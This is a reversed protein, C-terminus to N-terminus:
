GGSHEHRGFDSHRQKSRCRRLKHRCVDRREAADYAVTSPWEGVTVNAVVKNDSDSIVSVTNSSIPCYGTCSDSDAVYLEGKTPDYAIGNPGSGGTGSSAITVNTVVTNTSDSIVSVTNSGHNSVFIEGKASDYALGAPGSGVKVTAVVANTSDSIVSVTNSGYNSAFVEGKSSDYAVQVPDSGASVNAVVSNTADSIVAVSNAGYASDAVFVEGKASDYALGGPGGHVTVSAVVTM